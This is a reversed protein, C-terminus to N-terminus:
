YHHNAEIHPRIATEIQQALKLVISDDHATYAGTELYRVKYPAQGFQQNLLAVHALEVESPAISLGRKQAERLLNELDHGLKCLEAEGCNESRLFSKLLIEFGHGVLLELPAHFRLRLRGNEIESVLHNAAAIYSSALNLLGLATNRNIM